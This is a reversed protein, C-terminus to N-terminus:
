AGHAEAIARLRPAIIDFMEPHTLTYLRGDAIADAVIRGVERPALYRAGPAGKSMDEVAIDRLGGMPLAAPRNRQSQHINTMVPGPCLVTAGVKPHDRALEAALTETLAVVGYKTVSYAGVDPFATLGAQSATNVIHGGNSNAILHPLFAHVGHIVGWLNVDIVFKWDALTMSEIRSFPGVGANNCVIDVRGLRRLTEEALAQVSVADSVDTRIATAGIEAATAQLPAAEVDAIVVTAGRALLEEAVGRGIGSAGGTVVAVRGELDSIGAM